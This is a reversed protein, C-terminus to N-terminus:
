QNDIQQGKQSSPSSPSHVQRKMRGIAKWVKRSSTRMNLNSCFRQWSAKKKARFIYRCRARQRKYDLLNEITPARVAKEQARKRVILATNPTRATGRMSQKAVTEVNRKALATRAEM